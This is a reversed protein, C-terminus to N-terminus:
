DIRLLKINGQRERNNGRRTGCVIDICTAPWPKKHPQAEVLHADNVMTLKTLAAISTVVLEMKGGFLTVHSVINFYVNLM